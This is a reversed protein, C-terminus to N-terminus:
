RAVVVVRLSDESPCVKTSAQRSMAPRQMTLIPQYVTKEDAMM